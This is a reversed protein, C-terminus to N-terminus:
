DNDPENVELWDFEYKRLPEILEGDIPCYIPAECLPCHYCDHTCARRAKEQLHEIFGITRKM